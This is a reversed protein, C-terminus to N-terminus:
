LGRLLVGDQLRVMTVVFILIVWAVLGLAIAANRKKRAIIQADTLVIRGEAEAQSTATEQTVEIM